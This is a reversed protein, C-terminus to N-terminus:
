KEKPATLRSLLEAYRIVDDDGCSGLHEEGCALSYNMHCLAEVLEEREQTLEAIQTAQQKVQEALQDREAQLAKRRVLVAAVVGPIDDVTCTEDDMHLMDFTSRQRLMSVEADARLREVEATLTNLLDAADRYTLVGGHADIVRIADGFNGFELLVTFPGTFAM